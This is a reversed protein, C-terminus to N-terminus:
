QKHWKRQIEPGFHNFILYLFSLVAVLRSRDITRIFCAKILWKLDRLSSTAFDALSRPTYPVLLACGLHLTRNGAKSLILLARSNSVWDDHVQGLIFAISGMSFINQNSFPNRVFDRGRGQRGRLGCVDCHLLGWGQKFQNWGHNTQASRCRQM